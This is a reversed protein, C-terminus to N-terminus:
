MVNCYGRAAVRSLAGAGEYREVGSWADNETLWYWAEVPKASGLLWGMEQERFPLSSSLRLM